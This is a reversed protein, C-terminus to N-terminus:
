CHFHHTLIALLSEDPNTAQPSIMVPLFVVNAITASTKPSKIEHGAHWFLIKEFFLEEWSGNNTEWFDGPLGM